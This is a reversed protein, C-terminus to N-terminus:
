EDKMLTRCIIPDGFFKEEFLELLSAESEHPWEWHMRDYGGARASRDFGAKLNAINREVNQVAQQTVKLRPDLQQPGPGEVRRLGDGLLSRELPWSDLDALIVWRMGNQARRIRIALSEVDDPQFYLDTILLWISAPPLAHDLPGLCLPQDRRPGPAFRQLARRIHDRRTRSGLEIVSTEPSSSFLSHLAVRDGSRGAIYSLAEALWLAVQLKSAATPLRMSDRSDISIVVRTQAELEFTRVLLERRMGHRASARWDVYRIDDGPVYPRLERFELSQGKRRVLHPGPFLGRNRQRLRLRYRDLSTSSLPLPVLAEM